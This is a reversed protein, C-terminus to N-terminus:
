NKGAYRTTEEFLVAGSPDRAFIDIETIEGPAAASVRFRYTLTELGHMRAKHVDNRFPEVEVRWGDASDPSAVANRLALRIATKMYRPNSQFIAALRQLNEELMLSLLPNGTMDDFPGAARRRAASFLDVEVRRKDPAEGPEVRLGIRDDFAPGFLKEDASHFSYSYELRDGAKLGQLQPREFLLDAASLPSEQAGSAAGAVVACAFAAASLVSSLHRM